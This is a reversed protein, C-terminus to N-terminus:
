SPVLLFDCAPLNFPDSAHHCWSLTEDRRIDTLVCKDCACAELIRSKQSLQQASNLVSRTQWEDKSAICSRWDGGLRQPAQHLDFRM